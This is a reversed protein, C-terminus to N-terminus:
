IKININIILEFPEGSMMKLQRERQQYNGSGLEIISAGDHDISRLGHKSDMEDNNSGSDSDGGKKLRVQLQSGRRFIHIDSEEEKFPNSGTKSKPIPPQLQIEMGAIFQQVPLKTTLQMFTLQAENKSEIIDFFPDKKQDAYM